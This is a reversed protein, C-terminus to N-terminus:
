RVSASDGFGVAIGDAKRVDGKEVILLLLLTMWRVSASDGFGIAIGEAKGVLGRVVNLVFVLLAILTVGSSGVM